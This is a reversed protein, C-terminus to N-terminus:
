VPLNNEDEEAMPLAGLPDTEVLDAVQEYIAANELMAEAMEPNDKALHHFFEAADRLLRAALQANNATM